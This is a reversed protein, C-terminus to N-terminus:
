QDGGLSHAASVVQELPSHGCWACQCDLVAMAYNERSCQGCRQLGISFGSGLFGFGREGYTFDTQMHNPQRTRFTIESSKNTM